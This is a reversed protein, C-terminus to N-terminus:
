YTLLDGVKTASLTNPRACYAGDREGCCGSCVGCNTETSSNCTYCAQRGNTYYHCTPTPNSDLVGYQGLCNSVCAQYSGAQNPFQYVSVGAPRLTRYDGNVLLTDARAALQAQTASDAATAHAAADAAAAYTANDATAAHSADDAAAAHDAETARAAHDAEAAREASQSHYAYPVPAVAVRPTLTEGEVTVELYLPGDRFMAPDLTTRQGLEVKFVGDRALVSLADESWLASGGSPERFFKIKLVVIGQVPKGEVDLLRGQYHLRAPVDAGSSRSTFSLLSLVAFISFFIKM